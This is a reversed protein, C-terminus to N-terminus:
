ATIGYEISLRVKIMPVSVAFLQSLQQPNAWQYYRDLLRRPVLLHGAFANAEKEYPDTDDALQDRMLIKYESSRAWDQHLLRHGLEHAVTFTQRLPLERANVYIAGETADFFGSIRDHEGSFTVFHVAVGLSRAIYVPDVPPNVISFEDLLRAAERKVTHYNPRYSATLNHM